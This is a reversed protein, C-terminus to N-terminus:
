RMVNAPQTSTFAKPRTAGMPMAMIGDGLSYTRPGSHLVIATHVQEGLQEKLWRLHVADKPEPAAAAKVDIAIIRGHPLEAILDVERRGTDLRLHFLRPPNESAGLEVRLQSLVFTEIHRGLLDGNRLV